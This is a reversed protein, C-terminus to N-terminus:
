LYEMKQTVTASKNLRYEDVAGATADTECRDLESLVDPGLDVHGDAVVFFRLVEYVREFDGAGADEM